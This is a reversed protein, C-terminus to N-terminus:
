KHMHIMLLPGDMIIKLMKVLTVRKVYGRGGGWFHVIFHQNALSTEHVTVLVNKFAYLM